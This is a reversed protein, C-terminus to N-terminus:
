SGQPTDSSRLVNPMHSAFAEQVEDVLDRMAEVAAEADGKYIAHAIQEHNRLARPEPVPPMLNLQTRWTLVSEIVTSLAAFMENGCAQLILRHFRIDWEMFEPGSSQAGLEVVKMGAKLIETREDRSAYKAALAVARTEIAMRLDTLSEMQRERGEGSLRWRIVDPHFVNWYQMPQVILGRRRQAVTLGCEELSRQVDRAVTRSCEFEAELDALTMVSGAPLIGNAIRPGVIELIGRHRSRSTDM